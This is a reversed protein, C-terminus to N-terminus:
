KHRTAYTIGYPLHYGTATLQLEMLMGRGKIKELMDIDFESPLVICTISSMKYLLKTTFKSICDFQYIRYYFTLTNRNSLQLSGDNYHSLLVPNVPVESYNTKGSPRSQLPNFECARKYATYLGAM